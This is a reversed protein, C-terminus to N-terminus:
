IPIYFTQAAKQHNARLAVYKRPLRGVFQRAFVPEVQGQPSLIAADALRTPDVPVALSIARDVTTRRRRISRRGRPARARAEVRKAADRQRATSAAQWLKGSLTLSDFKWGESLGTVTSLTLRLSLSASSALACCGRM